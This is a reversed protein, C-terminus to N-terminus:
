EFRGEWSLLAGTAVGRLRFPAATASPAVPDASRTAERVLCYVGTGLGLAGVIAGATGIVNWLPVDAAAAVGTSSRCVGEPCESDLTPKRSLLEVTAVTALGGGLVGVSWGLIEWGRAGSPPPAAASPPERRPPATLERRPPAPREPIPESPAPGASLDLVVVSTAGALVDVAVSERRAGQELTVEHKGPDCRLARALDEGHLTTGDFRVVSAGSSSAGRLEVRVFSVRPLLEARRARAVELRRRQAELEDGDLKLASAEFLEFADLAASPRGRRAECEALTFLTGLLPETDYSRRLLPCGEDFRGAKMEVLGAEFLESSLSRPEAARAATPALCAGFLLSGLCLSRAGGSALKGFLRTGTTFM